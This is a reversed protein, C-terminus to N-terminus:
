DSNTDKQDKGTKPIVSCVPLHIGQVCQGKGLEEGLEEICDMMDCPFLEFESRKVWICPASNYHQITFNRLSEAKACKKHCVIVRFDTLDPGAIWDLKQGLAKFGATKM